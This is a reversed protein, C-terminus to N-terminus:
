SGLVPLFLSRVNAFLMEPFFVPGLQPQHFFENHLNLTDRFVAIHSTPALEGIDFVNFFLHELTELNVEFVPEIRSSEEYPTERSCNAKCGFEKSCQESHALIERAERLFIGGEPALSVDRKNRRLLTVGMEKELDRVQGSV